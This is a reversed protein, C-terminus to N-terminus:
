KKDEKKYGLDKLVQEFAKKQADNASNEGLKKSIKKNNLYEAELETLQGSKSKAELDTQLKTIADDLETKNLEFKEDFTQAQISQRERLLEPNEYKSNRIADLQGQIKLAEGHSYNGVLKSTLDKIKTEKEKEFAQKETNLQNDIDQLRQNKAAEFAAKRNNYENVQRQSEQAITGKEFNEIVSKRYKEAEKTAKSTMSKNIETGLTTGGFFAPNGSMDGTLKSYMDKRQKNFQIGGKSNWGKNAGYLFGSGFSAGNFAGSIGAGLGGTVAGVAKGGTNTISKGVKMGASNILKGPAGSAKLKEGIGLKLGGMGGFLDSIMKAM